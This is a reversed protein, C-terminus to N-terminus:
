GLILSMNIFIPYIDSDKLPSYIQGNENVEVEDIEVLSWDIEKNTYSKFNNLLLTLSDQLKVCQPSLNGNLYINIYVKDDLSQLIKKTEEHIRLNKLDQHSNEKSNFYLILLFVILFIGIILVIYKHKKM